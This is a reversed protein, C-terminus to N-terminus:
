GENSFPSYDSNMWRRKEFSYSRFWQIAPFIAVLFLVIWFNSWIPVDGVISVDFTNVSSYNERYPQIIIQYTGTPLASVLKTTSQSGESWSEGGDYGSYYEVGMEFDYEQLTKTNVLTIGTSLWNNNVPAYLKFEVNSTGLWSDPISIVPGAMPTLTNGLNTDPLTFASSGLPVEKSIKIFLAQGLVVMFIAVLAIVKLSEFSFSTSFPESAGVGTQAPMDETLNFAAKVQDPDLYEGLLWTIEKESVIRTMIYPPAVYETFHPSNDLIDWFFEGEAYLVETRYQNYLNFKYNLYYFDHLHIKGHSYDSIFRFVNWHGDYETLLTYGHVPNFLVYERWYYAYNAEKYKAFGVVAYVVENLRGKRGLPLVPKVQNKRQLQRQLSFASGRVKYIKCCDSCGVMVAQAYTVLAIKQQCQPCLLEKAAPLQKTDKVELGIM